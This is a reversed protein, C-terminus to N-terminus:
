PKNITNVDNVLDVLRALARTPAEPRPIHLPAVFKELTIRYLNYDGNSDVVRNMYILMDSGVAWMFGGSRVVVGANGTTAAPTYVIKMDNFLRPSLYDGVSNKIVLQRARYQLPLIALDVDLKVRPSLYYDVEAEQAAALNIADLFNANPVTAAYPAANFPTALVALLNYTSTSILGEIALSLRLELFSELERVYLLSEETIVESVAIKALTSDTRNYESQTDPKPDFQLVESAVAWPPTPPTPISMHTLGVQNGPQSVFVEQFYDQLFEVPGPAVLAWVHGQQGVQAGVQAAKVSRRVSRMKEATGKLTRAGGRSRLLDGLGARLEPIFAPQPSDKSAQLYQKFATEFDNLVQELKM